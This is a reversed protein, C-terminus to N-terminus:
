RPHSGIYDVVTQSQQIDTKLLRALAEGNGRLEQIGAGAMSQKVDPRDLVSDMDTRVKAIIDEPTKAPAIVGYWIDFQYDRLAPVRSERFTPIEPASSMRRAATTGIAKLRGNQVYPLAVSSTLMAMDIQGGLVDVSAESCGRYPAHVMHVKAKFKYLETAFHQPGGNGCSAYTYQGPHRRLLETLADLDAAPVRPNVVLVMPTSAVLAVPLFDRTVDFPPKPELVANSAAANNMLVLTYGDPTARAAIGMGVNGGAGPRNEVFVQQGWKESLKLALLRAMTDSSGGPSFPVILRVPREPWAAQAASMCAMFAVIVSRSFLFQM